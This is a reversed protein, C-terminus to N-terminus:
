ILRGMFPTHGFVKVQETHIGNFHDRDISNPFGIRPMRPHRDAHHGCPVYKPASKAGCDSFVGNTRSAAPPSFPILDEVTLSFTSDHNTAPQYRGARAQCPTM